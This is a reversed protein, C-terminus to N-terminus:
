SRRLSSRMKWDKFMARAAASATVQAVAVRVTPSSPTRATSPPM